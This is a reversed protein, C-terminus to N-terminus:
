LKVIEAMTKEASENRDLRTCESEHNHLLIYLPIHTNICLKNNLQVTILLYCLGLYM